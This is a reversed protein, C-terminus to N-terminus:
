LEDRVRIASGQLVGLVSWVVQAVLSVCMILVTTKLLLLLLSGRKRKAAHAYRTGIRNEAEIHFWDNDNQKNM